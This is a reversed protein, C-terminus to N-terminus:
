GIIELNAYKVVLKKWQGSDFLVVLKFNEGLGTKDIIKGEGFTGHKVRGGLIYKGSEGHERVPIQERVFSKSYDLTKAAYAPKIDMDVDMDPTIKDPIDIGTEGIFRSPMNWRSKGFVRREAAWSLFLYKKARTMGVYMLRREEELEKPDFSAEGIPFLGEELGTIFVSNFELGKALHLTMLTVKEQDDDLDDVDSILSVQTLYGSLSKDPSRREFEDIASILEYINEIKSKAEITDEAELEKIYETKHVVDRAIELVTMEDKKARFSQIFCKFDRLVKTINKSLRTEQAYDVASWLSVSKEKAIGQLIEMSTKGVGRRPVNIVRKFSVDDNSNHILRMYALIDKVEAREYFRMSGIVTYPIGARRFADEFVRSQANTRYFVAFENLKIKEKGQLFEVEDAIKQAEELENINENIRIENGEDNKTWLKKEIRDQNNQVVNWACSLINPTSRYNQELKITRCGPYDKEFELINKIDAGRWSYVSQDDDGVVCINKNKESLYKTLMYQAHNTDQYEDVLIYKFREQYKKRIAENDRLALVSYMLLDGFDLASTRALKQQYLKYVSATMQRLFEGESSTQVEYNQPEILDDKARSILALFRSPKFKKDDIELEKICEKIVNKQDTTDYILFDSALGINESETRLFKACFSHFTSINVNAGKGPVLSDVRKRMEGAAKNTFTVAMINWPAIGNELLYAIRYTIVRTKGTGAGAFIILPNDIHLVAEKQDPNLDNLFPKM